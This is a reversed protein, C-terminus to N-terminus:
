WAWEVGIWTEFAEYEFLQINSHQKEWSIRIAGWWQSDSRYIPWRYQTSLNLRGMNRPNGQDLWPSYGNVDRQYTLDITSNLFDGEILGNLNWRQELLGRFRWQDGGPRDNMAWERGANVILRYAQNGSYCQVAL